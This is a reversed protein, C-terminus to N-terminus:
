EGSTKGYAKINTFPKPRAANLQASKNIEAQLVLADAVEFPATLEEEAPAAPSNYEASARLTRPEYESEPLVPGTCSGLMM